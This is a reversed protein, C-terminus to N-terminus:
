PKAGAVKLSRCNNVEKKNKRSQDMWMRQNRSIKEARNAVTAYAGTVIKAAIFQRLGILGKIVCIASYTITLDIQGIM